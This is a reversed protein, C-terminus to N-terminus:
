TSSPSCCSISARCSSSLSFESCVSFSCSSSVCFSSCCSSGSNLSSLLHPLPSPAVLSVLASFSVHFCMSLSAPSAHSCCSYSSSLLRTSQTRECFMASASVSCCPPLWPTGVFEPLLPSISYSPPSVSPPLFVRQSSLLSCSVFCSFSNPAPLCHLSSTNAVCKAAAVRSSNSFGNDAAGAGALSLFQNRKKINAVRSGPLFQQQILFKATSPTKKAATPM